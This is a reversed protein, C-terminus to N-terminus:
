AQKADPTDPRGKFTCGNRGEREREREREKVRETETEREKVVFYQDEFPARANSHLLTTTICIEIIKTLNIVPIKKKKTVLRAPDFIHTIFNNRIKIWHM